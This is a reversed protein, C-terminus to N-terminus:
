SAATSTALSEHAPHLVVNPMEAPPGLEDRGLVQQHEILGLPGPIGGLDRGLVLVHIPAPQRLGLQEDLERLADRLPAHQDPQNSRPLLYM